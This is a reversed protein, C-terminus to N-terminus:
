QSIGMWLKGASKHHTNFGALLGATERRWQRTSYSRVHQQQGSARYVTFGQASFRVCFLQPDVRLAEWESPGPSEFEVLSFGYGLLNEDRVGRGALYARLSESIRNGPDISATAVLEQIVARAISLLASDRLKPEQQDHELRELVRQVTYSALKQTREPEEERCLRLLKQPAEPDDHLAALRHLFPADPNEVARLQLQNQARLVVFGTKPLFGAYEGKPDPVASRIQRAFAEQMQRRIETREFASELDPGAVNQGGAGNGLLLAIGMAAILWKNMKPPKKAPLAMPGCYAYLPFTRENPSQRGGDGSM